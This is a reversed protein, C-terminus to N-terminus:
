KQYLSVQKVKMETFAPGVLQTRMSSTPERQHPGAAPIPLRHRKRGCQGPCVVYETGQENEPPVTAVQEASSEVSYTRDGGCFEGLAESLDPAKTRGGARM